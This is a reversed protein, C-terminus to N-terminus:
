QMVFTRVEFGGFKQAGVGVEKRKKNQVQFHRFM